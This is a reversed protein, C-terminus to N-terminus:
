MLACKLKRFSEESIDHELRCADKVATEKSIGANAFVTLFFDYREYVKQAILVGKETLCLSSDPHKILFGQEKLQKIAVCVSAKSVRMSEAINVSHVNGLKRQLVFITKLYDEKSKGLELDIRGWKLKQQCLM